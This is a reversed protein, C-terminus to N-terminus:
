ASVLRILYLGPRPVLAALRQMFEWCLRCRKMPRRPALGTRQCLYVIGAIGLAPLCRQEAEDPHRDLPTPAHLAVRQDSSCQRLQCPEETGLGQCRQRRMQLVPGLPGVGRGKGICLRQRRMAVRDVGGQRWGPGIADVQRAALEGGAEGAVQFAGDDCGLPSDLCQPARQGHTM